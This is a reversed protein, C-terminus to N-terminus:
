EADDEPDDEPDGFRPIRSCGELEPWIDAIQQVIGLLIQGMFFRRIRHEHDQYEATSGYSPWRTIWRPLDSFLFSDCLFDHGLAARRIVCEDFRDYGAMNLAHNVAWNGLHVRMRDQVEQSTEHPLMFDRDRRATSPFFVQVWVKDQVPPGDPHMNPFFPTGRDCLRRCTWFSASTSLLPWGGQKPYRGLVQRFAAHAFLAAVRPDHPRPNNAAEDLPIWVTLPGPNLTVDALDEECTECPLHEDTVLDAGEISYEYGHAVNSCRYYLAPRGDEEAAAWLQEWPSPDTPPAPDTPPPGWRSRRRRVDTPGSSSSSGGEQYTCMCVGVCTTLLVFVIAWM